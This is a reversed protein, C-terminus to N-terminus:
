AVAKADPQDRHHNKKIVFDVNVTTTAAGPMTSYELTLVSGGSVRWGAQQFRDRSRNLEVPDGFAATVKRVITEFSEDKISLGASCSFEILQEPRRAPADLTDFKFSASWTAQGQIDVGLLFAEESTVYALADQEANRPLLAQVEAYSMGIRFSKIFTVPDFPEIHKAPKNQGFGNSCPIVVALVLTAVVSVVKKTHFM